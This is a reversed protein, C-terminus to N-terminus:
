FLNGSGLTGRFFLGLLVARLGFLLLIQQSLKQRKGQVPQKANILQQLNVLWKVFVHGDREDQKRLSRLTGEVQWLM